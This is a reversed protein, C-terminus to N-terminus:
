DAVPAVTAATEVDREVVITGAVRITRGDVDRFTAVPGDFKVNTAGRWEKAIVDGEYLYVVRAVPRRFMPPPSAAIGISENCNARVILVILCGVSYVGFGWLLGDALLDRIRTQKYFAACTAALAFVGFGFTGVLWFGWLRDWSDTM